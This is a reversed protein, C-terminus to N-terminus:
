FRWILNVRGLVNARDDFAEVWFYRLMVGAELSLHESLQGDAGFALRYQSLGTDGGWDTTNLDFFAETAVFWNDAPGRAIPRRYRAMFRLVHRVDSSFNVDRQEALLRLGLVGAGADGRWDLQQWYRNEDLMLGQSRSEVVFRGYGLWARTTDSLAYGIGPRILYEELGNGFDYYRAQADVKYLWPGGEDASLKGSVFAGLWIGTADEVAYLPHSTVLAAILVLVQRCWRRTLRRAVRLVM